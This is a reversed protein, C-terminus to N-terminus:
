QEPVSAKVMMCILMQNRFNLGLDDIYFFSFCSKIIESLLRICGGGEWGMCSGHM